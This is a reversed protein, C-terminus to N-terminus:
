ASKREHREKIDRNPDRGTDRDRERDDYGLREKILYVPRQRTQDFIRWVYLSLVGTCLLNAGGMLMIIAVLSVWGPVVVNTTFYLVVGVMLYVACIAVICGGMILAARLPADSFSLIGNLALSISKKMTYSPTGAARKDPNFPIVVREFGIWQTM